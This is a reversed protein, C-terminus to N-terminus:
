CAKAVQEKIKEPLADAAALTPLLAREGMLARFVTGVTVAHDPRDIVEIHDGSGVTGPEIVRFYAGPLGAATFTKIWGPIGLWTVFTQCPTRPSTVELVLGSDGVTWREGILCATLDIGATTLNEGFMGNTLDRDLDTAWRDLDERAYAYVAQDDGGHHKRDCVSDGVVGSGLGGRRPGPARVTLPEASPRKAIGSRRSGLDLPSTATNVTLVSAM